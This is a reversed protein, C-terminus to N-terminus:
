QAEFIGPTRPCRGRPPRAAAVSSWGPARGSGLSVVSIPFRFRSPGDFLMSFAGDNEASRSVERRGIEMVDTSRGDGEAGLEVLRLIWVV